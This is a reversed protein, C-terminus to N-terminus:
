QAVEPHDLLQRLVGELQTMESRMRRAQIGALISTVIGVASTWIAVAVMAFVEEPAELLTDWFTPLMLGIAIFTFAMGARGAIDEALDLAEALRLLDTDLWSALASGVQGADNRDPRRRSALTKRLGSGNRMHWEALLCMALTEVALVGMILVSAIGSWTDLLPAMLDTM